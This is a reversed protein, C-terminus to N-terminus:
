MGAANRRLFLLLTLTKRMQLFPMAQAKLKRLLIELVHNYTGLTKNGGDSLHKYDKLLGQAETNLADYRKQENETFDIRHVFEDLKPLRLDVFAMDKRRRLTFARMTAQLLLRASESGNTLPRVLVSNFVELQNLGGTIGIFKLLSYLDRLSNVIPTGTLVWRSRSMLAYVAAAGKTQPNRVCHGEDLIVRRWEMSYLGTARLKREPHKVNKGGPMYISALTQYSTLVIDYKAFDEARMNSAKNAGHYTFVKLMSNMEIHAEVQTTWNSMVSVPAVILTTGRGNKEADAVILSIMELTKGLGMDDALIGGSALVPERTSYNSALNTYGDRSKTWLQVADSPSSSYPLHPAEQSMLWSLAQLQYPLMETKVANPKNAMPMGSLDDETMGMQEADAKFDRPTIRQSAELIDSMVAEGNGDPTHQNAYEGQSSPISGGKGGAAARRAEALRKKEEAARKKAADQRAKERKKAEREAATLATTPLKDGRMREKLQRGEDSEPNPGFLNLTIPCDFAGKEGALIGEIRLWRNDIYRSLKEAVRRPIHGIQVGAVNDIRIANSDYPNGPERRILIHEGANAMGSYYQIGVIKSAMEGYLTLEESGEAGDQTSGVIENIDDADEALWDSREATPNTSGGYVSRYGNAHVNNSSSFNRQVRHSSTGNEQDSDGTLDVEVRKRKQSM